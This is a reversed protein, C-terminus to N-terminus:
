ADFIEEDSIKQLVFLSTLQFLPVYLIDQPSTGDVGIEAHKQPIEFGLPPIGSHVPLSEPHCGLYNSKCKPFQQNRKEVLM